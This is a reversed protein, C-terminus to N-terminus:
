SSHQPHISEPSSYSWHDEPKVAPKSVWFGPTSKGWFTSFRWVCNSCSLTLKAWATLLALPFETFLLSTWEKGAVESSCVLWFVRFPALKVSIVAGNSVLSVVFWDADSLWDSFTRCTSKWTFWDPFKNCILLWVSASEGPGPSWISINPQNM